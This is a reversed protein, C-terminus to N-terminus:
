PNIVRIRNNGTDAVYLMGASDIAVGEPERFQAQSALGDRLGAIGDGAMTSVVVAGAVFTVKRIRHNGMDAVYLVFSSSTGSVALGKPHLLRAQAGPGDQYGDVSGALTTVTTEGETRVLRIRHNGTDAVLLSTADLVALGRPSFFEATAAPGDKAGVAGSGAVTSVTWGGKGDSAVLRIRCNNADALYIGAPGVALQEPEDVKATSAPGDAFGPTGDGLLTSVVLTQLDVRRLTHNGEDAVILGGSLALGTPNGFLASSGAGDRLGLAHPVGAITSVM